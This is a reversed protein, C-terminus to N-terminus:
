EIVESAVSLLGAPIELGLAKAAKLNIVFDFKTPLLVPLDAPKAGKLIKGVYIGAQRYSDGINPGYSILGGALAYSRFQYIAPIRNKAAFAIIRDRRTDFFPDAAVLLAAVRRELLAAFASKLEADNSAQAAYLKQGITSAARELDRHQAAAPAFNPNLLVGVLPTHQILQHLLGLRKPEMETTLLTFGTANGGPRNLSKVLGNEVPDNGLGFVIPITKTAWKAARASADGGVAALVAVHREVLEAALAPMRDYQGLAWRYEIKVSQDEIFGVEALGQLFAATERASDKPSRGSMYGIVPVSPQQARARLPWLASSATAGGLALIFERRKM